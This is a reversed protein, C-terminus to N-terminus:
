RADTKQWPFNHELLEHLIVGLKPNVEIATTQTNVVAVKDSSSQPCQALTHEGRRKLTAEV